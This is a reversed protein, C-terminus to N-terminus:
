HKGDKHEMHKMSNDSDDPLVKSMDPTGVKLEQKPMVHMDRATTHAFMYYVGDHDFTFKAEYIGDETHKGEVMHGEDRLGSEWVEFEVSDADNVAEDSQTVKASLVIEEGVPLEKPTQIEVFVEELTGQQSTSTETKEKEGCGVLTLTGLLALSIM